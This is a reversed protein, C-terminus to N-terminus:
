QVTEMADRAQELQLEGSLLKPLLNDRLESLQNSEKVKAVIQDFMPAVVEVFADILGLGPCIVLMPRFAKKSIEMFTSGNAQGKIEEMNQQCWMLLYLPPLKGGPLMAIYGQNIAVPIQTIALYGIPARSSM